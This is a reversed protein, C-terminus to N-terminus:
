SSTGATQGLCMESSQRKRLTNVGRLAFTHIYTNKAQKKHVKLTNYIEEEVVCFVELNGTITNMGPPAKMATLM